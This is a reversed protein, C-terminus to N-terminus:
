IFGPGDSVELAGMVEIAFPESLGFSTRGLGDGLLFCVVVLPVPLFIALFVAWLMMSRLLLDLIFSSNPTKFPM